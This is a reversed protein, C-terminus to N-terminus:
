DDATWGTFYDADFAGYERGSRRASTAYPTTRWQSPHFMMGTNMWGQDESYIINLDRNYPMEPAGFESFVAYRYDLGGYGVDYGGQASFYRFGVVGPHWTDSETGNIDIFSLFVVAHGSGTTRNIGVFSGPRLDEFVINEGMGFHRLADASGATELEYSVWLHAKIDDSGFGEFSSRPLFDFISDDGTQVAYIQMATLIVETVAAVCMTRAGGSREIDGHPGYEIDHTFAASDYGLKGYDDYLSEVALLIYENFYDGPPLEDRRAQVMLTYAGANQEGGYTDLSLWYTGPDLVTGVVINDRDVAHVPDLSDLIHVDIDVGDPEPALVEAFLRVTEDVTFEYFVEPGSQDTGFPPYDDVDSGLALTTDGTDTFLWPLPVAGPAVLIPDALTGDATPRISVDLAFPGSLATGDAVFSDVVLYYRGPSLDASVALHDREIVSSPDTSGLLHLDNDVGDPESSLRAELSVPRDVEFVYFYEPGSEDQTHPPYFDALDSLADRTDRGDVYAAWGDVVDIVFPNAVTGDAEPEVVPIESSSTTAAEVTVDAAQNPSCGFLVALLCFM